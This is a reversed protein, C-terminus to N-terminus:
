AVADAPSYTEEKLVRDILAQAQEPSLEEMDGSVRLTRSCADALAADEADDAYDPLMSEASPSRSQRPIGSRTSSPSSPVEVVSQRIFGNSVQGERSNGNGNARWPPALDGRKKDYRGKQPPLRNHKTERTLGMQELARFVRTAQHGNEAQDKEYPPPLESTDDELDIIEGSRTNGGHKIIDDLSMNLKDVVTTKPRPQSQNLVSGRMVAQQKMPPRSGLARFFPRRSAGRSSLCRENEEHRDHGQKPMVRIIIGGEGDGDIAFRLSGGDGNERFMHKRVAQLIDIERLGQREGWFEM